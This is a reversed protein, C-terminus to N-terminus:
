KNSSSEDPGEQVRHLLDNLHSSTADTTFTEPATPVKSTMTSSTLFHLHVAYGTTNGFRYDIKNELSFTVIGTLISFLMGILYKM